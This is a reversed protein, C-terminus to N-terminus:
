DNDQPFKKQSCITYNLPNKIKQCLAAPRCINIDKYYKDCNPPMIKKHKFAYSLQSDVYGQKLPPMNKANWETIKEEIEQRSFNLSNLYSILIFLSRKKGDKLGKLMCQICPPYVIKSRDIEIEKYVKGTKNTKTENQIKEKYWDLAQILLERAEGEKSEPMYNRIKVKLPDADSPQFNELEQKTIVISALGTKEHLSYPTRFLHRSSVLVIDLGLIQYIDISSSFYNPNGLSSFYDPNELSNTKCKNCSYYETENISKMIKSCQPCKREQNKEKIKITEGIKCYNCFFELKHMSECMHGCHNCKFGHLDNLRNFEAGSERIEKELLRRSIEKLYGCVIRAWDPFMKKTEIDNIQKPFSNWPIIIHFGKGGSFKIGVNEVGSYSLAKLISKAALKAYDFWKCDIDILLDWSDRMEDLQEKTMETSIELPRTWLEESCHFSTAGKKAQQMIDSPYELTDPRKGFGEGYRPVVERNRCFNYIADQVDKRAYYLNILSDLKPNVM